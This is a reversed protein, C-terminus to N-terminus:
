EFGRMRLGEIAREADLIDRVAYIMAQLELLIALVNSLADAESTLNRERYIVPTTMSEDQVLHESESAGKAIRAALLRELNGTEVIVQRDFVRREELLKLLQLPGSRAGSPLRPLLDVRIATEVERSHSFALAAIEELNEYKPTPINM